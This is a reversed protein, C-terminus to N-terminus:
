GARRALKAVNAPPQLGLQAYLGTMLSETLTRVEAAAGEPDDSHDVVQRQEVVVVRSVTLWLAAALPAALRPCFLVPSTAMGPEPDTTWAAALAATLEREAEFLVRQEYAALAPSSHVVQTFARGQPSVHLRVFYAAGEALHDALATLPTVGAPRNRVADAPAHSWPIRGDFFLEEKTAFHNFVTQVAVDAQRAIDAITVADFGNEAFLRHAVTRVHERTQAKKRARRDSPQSM